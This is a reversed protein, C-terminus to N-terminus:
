RKWMRAMLFGLGVGIMLSTMPNKRIATAIDDLMDAPTHEQLYRGGKELTDAVASSAAGIMGDHPLNERVTGALSEMGSGVATTARDAATNVAGTLGGNTQQQQETTQTM